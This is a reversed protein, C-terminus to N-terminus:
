EQTKENKPRGVGAFGNRGAFIEQNLVGPKGIILADRRLNRV